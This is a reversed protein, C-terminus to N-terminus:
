LGNWVVHGVDRNRGVNHDYKLLKDLFDIADDDVFRENDSNIFDRWNKKPQSGLTEYFEVDLQIDYKDAYIFLDETGLVKAIKLLQESSTNGYFFPEKRFIMSASMSGLSWMDLSYDYKQFGVLHEPSKFWATRLRVDYEM